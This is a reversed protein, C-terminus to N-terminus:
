YLVVVVVLEGYQLLNVSRRRRVDSLGKKLRSVMEKSGRDATSKFEFKERFKMNIHFM